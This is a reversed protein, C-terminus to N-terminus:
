GRALFQPDDSAAASASTRDGAAEKARELAPDIGDTVFHFTTGGKM